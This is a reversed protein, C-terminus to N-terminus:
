QNTIQEALKRYKRTFYTNNWGGMGIYERLDHGFGRRSVRLITPSQGRKFTPNRLMKWKQELDDMFERGTPFYKKVTGEALELFEDIEGALYKEMIKEPGVRMEVFNRVLADHYDFFFPDTQDDALEASPPIEAIEKLVPIDKEKALLKLLAFVDTKLVDAIPALAGAIDGYLTAYGFATETKNGNNTFVAGLNAAMGALIRGGRDRAQINEFNFDSVEIPTQKGTKTNEFVANEFQEKTADVAEQIPIECYNIGLDDALEAALSKTKDSNFKSPMNVAYINEAGIAEELFAAVLASDAGGSLGIVARKFNSKEFYDKMGFVIANRLDAIYKETDELDNQKEIVDWVKDGFFKGSILDEAFPDASKQISGDPNYLTSAGDFVYLNDVDNQTGVNNAYVVPIDKETTAISEKVIQHRKETKRAKWPSCSLNVILDADNDGLIKVPQDAYDSNQGSAWQDECLVVGIKHRTDRVCIEFPKMVESLDKEEERAFTTMSEFFRKDEFEGYNPLATKFTKGDLAGNSVYKGDQAVYAANYKRLRGDENTKDFDAAVNGWIVTIGQSAALIDENYSLFDEILEQNEWDDGIFYGPIAMEPFVVVDVGESKARDIYEVMKTVNLEPQGPLVNIQAAAVNLEPKNLTEM